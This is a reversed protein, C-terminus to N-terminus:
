RSAAPARRDASRQGADCGRVAILYDEVERRGAREAKGWTSWSSNRWRLKRSYKPPRSNEFKARWITATAM